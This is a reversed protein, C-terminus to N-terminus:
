FAVFSHLTKIGEWGREGGDVESFLLCGGEEPLHLDAENVVPLAIVVRDIVTVKGWPHHASPVKPSASVRALHPQKQTTSINWSGPPHPSTPTNPNSHSDHAWLKRSLSWREWGASTCTRGQLSVTPAGQDTLLVVAPVQCSDGAPARATALSVFRTHVGFDCFEKRPYVALHLHSGAHLM